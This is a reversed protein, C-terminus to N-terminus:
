IYKKGKKNVGLVGGILSSLLFIIFHFLTNSTVNGKDIILSIITVIISVSLGIILGIIFGKQKIKGSTYYATIFCSLAVSVTAFIPSYNKDLEFFYMLAAFLAMFFVSSLVLIVANKIILIWKNEKILNNKSM